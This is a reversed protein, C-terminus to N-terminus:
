QRPPGELVRVNNGAGAEAVAAATAAAVPSYFGVSGRFTRISIISWRSRPARLGTRRQPKRSGAGRIADVTLTGAGLLGLRCGPSLRGEVPRRGLSAENCLAGIGARGALEGSRNRQGPEGRLMGKAGFRSTPAVM